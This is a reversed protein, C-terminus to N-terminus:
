QKKRTVLWVGALIILCCLLHLVTFAEGDLVGWGIAVLPMLYTVSSAFLPNKEQTLWFYLINAMCTGFVALTAVYGLSSYGHPHERLIQGLDTTMLYISWPVAAMLLSLATIHLPHVHNLKSSITNVSIGYCLTAVVILLSAWWNQTNGPGNVVILSVAGILGVLVGVVQRPSAVRRLVTIGIILTFLPTLANLVGAVSSDLYQQSLTFLVAPIGSGILGVVAIWKLDTKKIKRFAMVSVPFLVLAGICMRMAAIQEPHLVPLGSPDKLARKMLIFSSGWTIALLILVVFHLISRNKLKLFNQGFNYSLM